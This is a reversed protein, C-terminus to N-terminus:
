LLMFFTNKSSDYIVKYKLCHQLFEVYNFSFMKPIKRAFIRYIPKDFSDKTIIKQSVTVRLSPDKMSINM